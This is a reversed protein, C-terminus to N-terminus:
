KESHARADRMMTIKPTTSIRCIAGVTALIRCTGIGVAFARWQM